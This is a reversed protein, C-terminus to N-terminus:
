TDRINPTERWTTLNLNDLEDGAHQVPRIRRGQDDYTTYQFSFSDEGWERRRGRWYDDDRYIIHVVAMQDRTNYYGPKVILEQLTNMPEGKKQLLDTLSPLLALV